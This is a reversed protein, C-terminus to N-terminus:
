CNNTVYYPSLCTGSPNAGPNCTNFTNDWTCQYQPTCTKYGTKGGSPAPDASTANDSNIWAFPGTNITNQTGNCTQQGQSSCLRVTLSCGGWTCVDNKVHTYSCDAGFLAPSVLLMPSICLALLATYILRSRM